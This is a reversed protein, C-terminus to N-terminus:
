RFRGELHIISLPNLERGNIRKENKTKEKKSTSRDRPPAGISGLM